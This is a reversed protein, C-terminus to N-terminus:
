DRPSPSTYLLCCVLLKNGESTSVYSKTTQLIVKKQGPVCIEEQFTYEGKRNIAIKDDRRYKEAVDPTFIEYDNKGIIKHHPTNQLICFNQNVMFYRFDNTVDKIFIIADMRDILFQSLKNLPQTISLLETKKKLLRIEEKLSENEKKLEQQEIDNM